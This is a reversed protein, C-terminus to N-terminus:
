PGMLFESLAYKPFPFQSPDRDYEKELFSLLKQKEKGSM